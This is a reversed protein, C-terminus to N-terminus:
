YIVTVTITDAYSGPSVNQLAPLNGYVTYNRTVSLLSLLYADSVTGTGSSGDGWITTQTANTYVNYSMLSSGSIMKRASFTGNQGASLAIVYSVNLGALLASCTVAVNGNANIATGALPNYSGFAVPSASVSCSCNLGICSAYGNNAIFMVMTFVVIRLQM